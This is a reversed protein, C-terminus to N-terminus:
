PSVHERIFPEVVDLIKQQQRRPLRSAADFVQNLKGRPTSAKKQTTEGCLESVSVGLISSLATLREIHVTVPTRELDSYTQQTVGLTKAVHSQTLGAAERLEFLRRGFDNRERISPRGQPMDGSYPYNRSNDSIAQMFVPIVRLDHEAL